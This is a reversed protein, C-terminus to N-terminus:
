IFPEFSIDYPQLYCLTICIILVNKDAKGGEANELVCM